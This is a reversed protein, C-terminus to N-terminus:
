RRSAGLRVVWWVLRLPLCFMRVALRVLDAALSGVMTDAARPGLLLAALGRLLALGLGVLLMWAVWPPLQALLAEGVAGIVPAILLMALLGLVARGRLIGLMMALGVGVILLPLAEDPLLTWLLSWRM